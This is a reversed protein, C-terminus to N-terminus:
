HNGDGMSRTRLMLKSLDAVLNNPAVKIFWGSSYPESMLSQPDHEVDHNVDVIKGSIPSYLTLTGKWSDSAGIPKGATIEYGVPFFIEILAFEKVAKVALENLGITALGANEVRCWIFQDSYYLDDPFVYGEIELSTVEWTV